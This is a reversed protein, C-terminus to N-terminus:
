SKRRAEAMDNEQGEREILKQREEDNWDPHPERQEKKDLGIPQNVDSHFEGIELLRKIDTQQDGLATLRSEIETLESRDDENLGDSEAKTALEAARSRKEVEEERLGTLKQNLDM